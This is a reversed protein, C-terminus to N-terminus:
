EGTPKPRIRGLRLQLIEDEMLRAFQQIRLFAERRGELIFTAYQDGPVVCTEAARCFKSLDTLVLQGSPSSFCVHYARILQENEIESM